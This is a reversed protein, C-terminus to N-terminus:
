PCSPDTDTCVAVSSSGHTDAGVKFRAFIRKTAPDFAINGSGTVFFSFTNTESPDIQTTVSASPPAICAGGPQGTTECVNISAPLAVGGTDASATISAGAGGVNVTAVGFAVSGNTTPIRAIGDNPPNTAILAVIDAVAGASSSILLTSVGVIIPAPNSNTCDFIIKLDTSAFAGNATVSFVYNKSGPDIPVPTNPLGIPPNLNYSFIIPLPNVSNLLPALGCQTATVGGGNIITAFATVPTGVQASRSSPL